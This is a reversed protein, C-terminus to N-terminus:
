CSHRRIPRCWYYVGWHRQCQFLYQSRDEISLASPLSLGLSLSLRRFLTWDPPVPRIYHTEGAPLSTICCCTTRVIVTRKWKLLRSPLLFLCRPTENHNRWPHCNVASSRFVVVSGPPPPPPTLRGRPDPIVGPGPGLHPLPISRKGVVFSLRHRKESQQVIRLPVM